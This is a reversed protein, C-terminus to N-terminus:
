PTAFRTLTRDTRTSSQLPLPLTDLTTEPSSQTIAFWSPGETAFRLRKEPGDIAISAATSAAVACPITTTM